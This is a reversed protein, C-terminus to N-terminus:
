KICISDIVSQICKDVLDQQRMSKDLAFKTRFDLIVQVTLTVYNSAVKPPERNTRRFLRPIDNANKLYSFCDNSKTKVIFDILVLQLEHLSNLSCNFAEKTLTIDKMANATRM